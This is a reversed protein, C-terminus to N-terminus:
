SRWRRAPPPRCELLASPVVPQACAARPPQPDPPGGTNRRLGGNLATCAVAAAGAQTAQLAELRAQREGGGQGAAGHRGQDQGGVRGGAGQGVGGPAAVRRGGDPRGGATAAPAYQPRPSRRHLLATGPRQLRGDLPHRPARGAQSCPSACQRLAQLAAPSAQLAARCARGATSSPWRTPRSFVGQRRSSAKVSQGSHDVQMPARGARGARGTELGPSGGRGASALDEEFSGGAHINLRRNPPSPAPDELGGAGATLWFDAVVVTSAM